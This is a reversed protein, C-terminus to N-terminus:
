SGREREELGVTFRTTPALVGAWCHFPHKSCFSVEKEGTEALLACKSCAVTYSWCHFPDQSALSTELGGDERVFLGRAERLPIFRRSAERLPIFRGVLRGSLYIGGPIGGQPTYVM